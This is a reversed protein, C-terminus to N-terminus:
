PKPSLATSGGEVQVTEFIHTWCLRNCFAARASGGELIAPRSLPPSLRLHLALLCSGLADMYTYPIYKPSLPTGM